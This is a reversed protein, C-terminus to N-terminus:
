TIFRPGGFLRVAIYMIWALKKYGKATVCMRLKRDAAARRREGGGVRYAYDHRNCCEEFPPAHGTV